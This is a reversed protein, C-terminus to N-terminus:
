ASRRVESTEEYSCVRNRGSAKARYVAEDARKILMDVDSVDDTIGATGVSITVSGTYGKSQIELTEVASRIREGCGIAGQDDTDPCVVLFEEGGIRAVIDIARVSARLAKAVEVLVVDGVDHGHMDNVKKFHDIDVMVVSFHEQKRRWTEWEEVLREMGYRRNPLGTLPDTSATERLKRTLVGLKSTAEAQIKQEREVQERLNVLRLGARVRALLIKPNFPKSVYDDIGSEFAEVVRDEEDRGTVLLFYVSRGARQARRLAKCLQIGDMEPMMWDSIVIHPNWELTLALAEKGNNAAVVDHGARSLHSQLLKLSTSEDDVAIIRLPRFKDAADLDDPESTTKTRKRVRKSLKEVHELAPFVATEIQLMRGWDGWSEGVTECFARFETAEMGLENRVFEMEPWRAVQQGHDSTCFESFTSAMRLLSMLEQAQTDKTHAEGDAAQHYGIADVFCDPLGWDAIMAMSVELSHIAFRETELVRMDLSPDTKSLELIAAYESPHVSALALEGIHSLLACTFAETPVSRRLQTSLAQACVARALSDAWFEDYDFSECRGARNGAVLTFGLALNAVSRIGVRLAADNVTTISATAGSGASNALRIIRGTLAPDTQIVGVIEDIAWDERQTLSLIKLGVGSPSPLQGSDRLEDFEKRVM